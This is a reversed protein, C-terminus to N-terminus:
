LIRTARITVRSQGSLTCTFLTLDWYDTGSKMTQIDYGNVIESQAVEYSYIVGNVDTIYIEDGTSLNQLKGFHSRYNHGAIIINNEQLTGDYLCPSKKLNKSTLSNSIPLELNLSPVTIIGLYYDGDVYLVPPEVSVNEITDTTIEEYQNKIEDELSPQNISDTLTDDALSTTDIQAKIQIVTNNSTENGNIDENINHLVISLAVLLLVTGLIIFISSQINKM